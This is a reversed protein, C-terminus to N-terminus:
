RRRSLFLFSVWWWFLWRGDSGMIELILVLNRQDLHLNQGLELSPGNMRLPSFWLYIRKQMQIRPKSTGEQQFKEGRKEEWIRDM